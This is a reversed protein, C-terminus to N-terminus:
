RKSFYFGTCYTRTSPFIFCFDICTEICVSYLLVVKVLSQKATTKPHLKSDIISLMFSRLTGVLKPIAFVSGDAIVTQAIALARWNHSSVTLPITGLLGSVSRNEFYFFWLCVCRDMREEWRFCVGTKKARKRLWWSSSEWYYSTPRVSAAGRYPSYQWAWLWPLSLSAPVAETCLSLFTCFREVVGNIDVCAWM